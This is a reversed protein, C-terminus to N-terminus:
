IRYVHNDWQLNHIALSSLGDGGLSIIEGTGSTLLASEDTEYAQNDYLDSVNSAAVGSCDFVTLSDDVLLSDRNVSFVLGGKAATFVAHQGVIAVSSLYGSAQNQVYEPLDITVLGRGSVGQQFSHLSDRLSIFGALGDITKKDGEYQGAYWIKGDAACALHRISVQHLNDALFHRGVLEGNRADVISLSPQMVPLNLKERGTDPHTQIGGNAIVLLERGPVRVIEHPGIGYTEMEGIRRYGRTADYIGIVGRANDFDNETAYLLNGTESYTGHGYFHRASMPAIVRHINPNRVDFTNMFLGPRRGFICVRHSKAHAAAGHARATLPVTAQLKGKDDFLVAVHQDSSQKAGSIYLSRKANADSMAALATVSFPYLAVLAAKLLARRHLSKKLDSKM